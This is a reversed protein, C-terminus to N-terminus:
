ILFSFQLVQPLSSFRCISSVDGCIAGLRSALARVVMGGSSKLAGSLFNTTLITVIAVGVASSLVTSLIVIKSKCQTKIVIVIAVSTLVLSLTVQFGLLPLFIMLVM